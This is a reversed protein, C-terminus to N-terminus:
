IIQRKKFVFYVVGALVVLIGCVVAFGWQFDVGPLGGVNIGLLGTLLGLPLFITAVISMTYITRNMQESLRANLEEQAVAARDRAADLDDICRAVREASERLSLRDMDSLWSVRESVLRSLSERQPIVYRRLGIVMRRYKLVQTRLESREKDLIEDELSDVGEDIEGVVDSIRHTMRDCLLELFAGSDAPGEHRALASRIDNVAEVRRRRMTLIRNDTVWLRLSVMDDPDSGPNCNVGRLCIVLGGDASTVRPRTDDSVLMERTLESLGSEKEFWEQAVSESFDMHFWVVNQSVKWANRYDATIDVAAGEGDLAACFVFGDSKEM